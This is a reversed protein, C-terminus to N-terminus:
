DDTEETEDTVTYWEGKAAEGGIAAVASRKEIEGVNHKDSVENIAKILDLLYEDSDTKNM